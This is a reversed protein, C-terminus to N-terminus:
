FRYGLKVGLTRPRAIYDFRGQEGYFYASRQGTIAYTNGMNNVFVGAQWNRLIVDLQANLMRYGALRAYDGFHKNPATTVSSSYSYNISASVAASNIRQQYRLGLNWQQRPSGVLQDGAHVAIEDYENARVLAAQTLAADTFAYTVRTSWVHNLQVITELEAGQTRAAGANSTMSEGDMSYVPVQINKWDMVFLAANLQVKGHSFNSHTGLEYNLVSDPKYSRTAPTANKLLNAGGRRFGEALTFYINQADSFKYRTSFKGLSGSQDDPASNCDLPYDASSYAAPLPFIYSCVALRDKFRFHRAGVALEWAPAVDYAVEAYWSQERLQEAQTGIYDLDEPRNEGSFEGFGPAYDAITAAVDDASVFRGLLWRLAQQNPSVLRVEASNKEINIAGRTFASFDDYLAYYGEGWTHLLYDTQDGLTNTSYDYRNISATLTAVGFDYDADISSLKLDGDMPQTYKASGQYRDGTVAANTAQRDDAALQQSHHSGSVSFTDSPAWVLSARVQTNADSNTDREGGSILYHNDIFGANDAQSLLLRAALVKDIIAANLVVDTDTNLADSAKTQSISTNLSASTKSADPKATVYRILGGVSANGYLTGQPGRLVEIQQLDKLGIAPPVFFGQLPINDLYTAVTGGDGAFDKSGLQDTRLGRMSLAATTRPGNNTATLGPVQNALDSLTAKPNLADGPVITVAGSFDNLTQARKSATVILNEVVVNEAAVAQAMLLPAMLLPVTLPVGFLQAGFVPALACCHALAFGATKKIFRPSQVLPM